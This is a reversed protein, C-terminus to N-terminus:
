GPIDLGGSHRLVKLMGRGDRDTPVPPTDTTEDAPHRGVVIKYFQILSGM